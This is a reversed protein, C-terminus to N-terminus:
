FISWLIMFDVGPGDPGPDLLDRQGRRLPEPEQLLLEVPDLREPAVEGRGFLKAALGLVDELVRPRLIVLGGFLYCFKPSFVSCFQAFFNIM